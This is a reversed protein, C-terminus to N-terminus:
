RSYFEVIFGIPTLEGLDNGSPESLIKGEIKEKDLFLWQPAEYKKLSGALNEMLKSNKIKDRLNIVDNVRVRYSPINVRRGSVLVQGHNVLQRASARSKTWGLRFVVNDLRMEMRRVLNERTDGKQKQAERFYKKLQRELIGYIKKLRQKQMLQQGFESLGRRHRGRSRGHAGPPYAKKVMACKQTFCREGKLFLKENARRCQRCKAVLSM